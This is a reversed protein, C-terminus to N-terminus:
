RMKFIKPDEKDSGNERKEYKGEDKYVGGV